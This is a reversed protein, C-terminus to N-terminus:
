FTARLGARPYLEPSLSPCSSVGLLDPPVDVIDSETCIGLFDQGTLAGELTFRLIGRVNFGTECAHCGDVLEYQFIYGEGDGSSRLSEFAPNDVSFTLDPFHGRLVDADPNSLAAAPLERGSPMIFSPDGNLLVTGQNNNAPFPDLTTGVDVKGRELVKTLFAGREAYFTAAEKSSGREVMLATVCSPGTESACTSYLDSLAEGRPEWVSEESVGVPESPGPDASRSGDQSSTDPALAFRGIAIGVVAGAVVGIMLLAFGKLGMTKEVYM